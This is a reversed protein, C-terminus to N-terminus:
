VHSSFALPVTFFSTQDETAEPISILSEAPLTRNTLTRVECILSLVRLATESDAKTPELRTRTM